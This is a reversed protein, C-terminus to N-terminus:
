SQGAMAQEDHQQAAVLSGCSRCFRDGSMVTSQCSACSTVNAHDTEEDLTSPDVYGLTGFGETAVIDVDPPPSCEESIGPAVAAGDETRENWDDSSARDSAVDEPPPLPADLYANPYAAGVDGVPAYWHGDSALWWGPAPPSHEISLGPAPAPAGTGTASQGNGNHEVSNDFRDPYGQPTEVVVTRRDYSASAEPTVVRGSRDVMAPPPLSRWREDLATHLEGRFTAGHFMAAAGAAIFPGILPVWWHAAGWSAGVIAGVAMCFFVLAAAATVGGFVFGATLIELRRLRYMARFTDDADLNAVYRGIAVWHIIWVVFGVIAASLSAALLNRYGVSSWGTAVSLLAWIGTSAGSVALTLAALCTTVLYLRLAPAPALVLHPRSKRTAVYVIFLVVSIVVGGVSAIPVLFALAWIWPYRYGRDAADFYMWAGIAVCIFGLGFVGLVGM